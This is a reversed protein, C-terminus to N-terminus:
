IPRPGRISPAWCQLDGSFQLMWGRSGNYPNGFVGLFVRGDPAVMPSSTSDNLIAADAGRPDKLIGSNYKTALTTTDLGVLRGRYVWNGPQKVVIYLTTGDNSIAPAGNMQVAGILSDTGGAAQFASVWSGAAQSVTGNASIRAIGSSLGTPTSGTVRFGFYINGANDATLPTDIFVNNDYAAQNAQYHEISGFFALQTVTGTNSDPNDRYYITGGKGTFYVRNTATALVPQNLPYWSYSAPIYPTPIDWVLAGSVGNRAVIRYDPTNVSQTNGTKYPYIVTNNLTILPGGYHAARSTPFNDVKTSWHVAELPQSAVSSISTHQANGGFSSWATADLAIRAELTEIIPRLSKNRTKRFSFLSM